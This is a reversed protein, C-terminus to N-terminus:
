MVIGNSDCQLGFWSRRCPDGGSAHDEWGDQLAWRSRGNTSLYLDVLPARQSGDNTSGLSTCAFSENVCPSCAADGAAAFQGVGCKGVTPAASTSGAACAYGAMCVGCPQDGGDSYRGAPCVTGSSSNSGASCSFGRAATCASCPTAGGISFRGAVCLEGASSVAGADCGFGPLAACPKCSATRSVGDVAVSYYWGPLCRSRWVIRFGQRRSRPEPDTRWRLLMARGSSYHLSGPATFAFHKAGQLVLVCVDRANGAVILTV